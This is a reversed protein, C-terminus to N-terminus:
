PEQGQCTYQALSETGRLSHHGLSGFIPFRKAIQGFDDQKMGDVFTQNPRVAFARSFVSFDANSGFMPDDCSYNALTDVAGRRSRVVDDSMRAVFPVESTDGRFVHSPCCVDFVRRILDNMPGLNKAFALAEGFKCFFVDAFYSSKGMKSFAFQRAHEIHRMVCNPADSFPNSPLMNLAVDNV